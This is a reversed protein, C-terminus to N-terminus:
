ELGRRSVKAEFRRGAPEFPHKLLELERWAGDSPELGLIVDSVHRVGPGGIPRRDDGTGRVQNTFVALGGGERAARHLRGLQDFLRSLADTSSGQVFRYLFTLSDLIVAQVRGSSLLRCGRELAQAQEDLNGPRAVLVREAVPEIVEAVRRRHLREALVLCAPATSRALTLALSSKGSGAPGHVQALTAEPLGGIGEDLARVGTQLTQSM